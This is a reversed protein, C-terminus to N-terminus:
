PAKVSSLFRGLQMRGLKDLPPPLSELMSVDVAGIARLAVLAILMTAIVMVFSRTLLDIGMNPTRSALSASVYAGFGILSFLGIPLLKIEPDYYRRSLFYVYVFTGALTLCLAVAAGMLGFRPVLGIYAITLVVATSYQYAGRM